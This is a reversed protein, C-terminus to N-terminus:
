NINNSAFHYSNLFNEDKTVPEMSEGRSFQRLDKVRYAFPVSNRGRGLFVERRSQANLNM